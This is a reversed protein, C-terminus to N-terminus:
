FFSRGGAGAYGLAAAMALYAFRCFRDNRGDFPLGRLGHALVSRFRFSATWGAPHRRRSLAFGRLIAARSPYIKGNM